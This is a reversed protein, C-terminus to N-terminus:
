PKRESSIIRNYLNYIASSLIRTIDDCLSVVYNYETESFIELKYLIEAHMRTELCEGLAINFKSYKHKNSIFAQAEASNACVSNSSRSIQSLYGRISLNQEDQCQKVKGAVFLSLELSKDILPNKGKEYSQKM